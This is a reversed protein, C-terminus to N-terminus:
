IHIPRLIPTWFHFGMLKPPATHMCLNVLCLMRHCFNYLYIQMKVKLKIYVILSTTHPLTTKRAQWISTIILPELEFMIMDMTMGVVYLFCPTITITNSMSCLWYYTNPINQHMMGTPFMLILNLM